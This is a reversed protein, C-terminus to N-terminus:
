GLRGANHRAPLSRLLRRASIAVVPLHQRFFIEINDPPWARDSARRSWSQLRALRAGVDIHLFRDAHVHAFARGHQIGRAFILADHLHAHLPATRRMNGLGFCRKM